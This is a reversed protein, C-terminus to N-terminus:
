DLLSVGIAFNGHGVSHTVLGLVLMCAHELSRAMSLPGTDMPQLGLSQVLASVQAKAEEDDGALFVDLPRGAISGAALVRENLTNFAKVVRTDAPAAKAIELAGSSDKPTLFTSLDSKIPNTIDILIKGSLLAGQGKLVDFVATYPVALVVFHGSPAVDLGRTTAGNGIKEALARAKKTDRGIVEVTHGAGAALGGIAAAMGGTGIISITSM